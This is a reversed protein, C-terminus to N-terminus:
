IGISIRFIGDSIEMISFVQNFEETKGTVSKVTVETVLIDMNREFYVYKLVKYDTYTEKCYQEFQEYTPFNIQKYSDYLLAYAKDYQKNNIFSFYNGVAIAVRENDDKPLPIKELTTNNLAEVREKEELQQQSVANNYYGTAEQQEKLIRNNEIVPTIRKNVFLGISIIILLISTGILVYKKM